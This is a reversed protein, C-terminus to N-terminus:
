EIVFLERELGSNITIADVKMELTQPGAEQTIRHPMMIGEVPRYDDYTTMSEDKVTKVKMLTETNYYDYSQDGSPYTVKIKYTDGESTPKIGLLEKEIGHEKYTMVINMVANMKLQEFEPGETFEQRGMQSVVVAKDGDFLQQSLTMGGMEMKQLVFHPAKQYGKIQIEMGMTSATMEQTMDNISEVKTRGGLAEIHNGIVTEATYGEPAPLLDIEEVPRAFADYFEVEGTASFPILKDTVEDQNGAVVIISQDPKLYKAAMEQVDEVTVANLRELYTVYYDHPLGYREVNLAFNAITRPSELSRAFSGTMFNQTLELSSDDVPENIMRNMEYLIETVTSDTVENRVETRATFRSVLRDTGINSSAGYTYGKDERLNQMLRGSFAGGGLISNMVSVKIADEHGPPLVVPHTVMVVSQVAGRRNAFAVRKGEPPEPTPYTRTPVEGPEWGGFYQEVVEKAEDVNMDGVVVLYAANPKFHDEYYQRVQDISINDLSEETTVEGYPHEPGFAIARSVNAAMASADNQVTALGSKNQTILREMEEQPFTPNLLIDSMLELLTEQHRTLSSAFMGTSFTSLSGGIFDIAEDIEQKSRNATGERMLSGALSVYGKADGEFVPDIDLTLQFSVVPVQRNEVVIVKMGNDLEFSEFEGLQIVPAPGPEPRQSRDVQASVALITFLSLLLSTIINRM